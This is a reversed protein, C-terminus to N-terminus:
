IIKRIIKFVGYIIALILLSYFIYGGIIMTKNWYSNKKEVERVAAEAHYTGESHNTVAAPVTDHIAPMYAWVKYKGDKIEKGLRIYKGNIIENERLVVQNEQNCELWAMLFASDEEIHVVVPALYTSDKSWTNTSDKVKPCCDWKRCQRAQYKAGCSSLLLAFLIIIVIAVMSVGAVTIQFDQKSLKM